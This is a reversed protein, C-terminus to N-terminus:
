RVLDSYQGVWEASRAFLSEPTDPVNAMRLGAEIVLDSANVGLGDAIAEIIASSPCKQGREVESLYGLALYGNSSLSRLTLGNALRRDRVVEGFATQFDM